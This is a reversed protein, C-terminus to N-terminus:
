LYNLSIHYMMADGTHHGAAVDGKKTGVVVMEDCTGVVVELGHHAVEEVAVVLFVCGHRSCRQGAWRSSVVDDVVRRLHAM